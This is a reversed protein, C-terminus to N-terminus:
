DPRDRRSIEYTLVAAREMAEWDVGIGLGPGDPASVYGERDVRIVDHSGYEFPPYPVPHEFYDCNLHSLMVHLNAAQTLTYGWSQIEVNMSHAEAVAMIKRMATVGGAITTDVRAHTWCGEAAFRAILRPDLIWNGNALIPIDVSQTLQRYGEIDFDPLPAEFWAYGLEELERAARMAEERSYRQEVDLMLHLGADGHRAHVARVIAMDQEYVCTCHFKIARFGLERMEAVFDVYAEPSDLLPTSAYSMIRDRAGGLMRYLPMGSHKALLDWLAIDIISQAQPAIPLDLPQLRYWLRDRDFPSAGVVLPLMSRMTEAVATSFGFETVSMAAGVGELGGKTFVRAITNTVYQATHNKAWTFRETDPGVAYVKIREIELDQM